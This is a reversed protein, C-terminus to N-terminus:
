HIEDNVHSNLFRSHQRLQGTSLDIHIVVFVSLLCRVTHADFATALEQLVTRTRDVLLTRIRTVIKRMTGGLATDHPAHLNASGTEILPAAIGLM